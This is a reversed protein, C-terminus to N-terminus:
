GDGGLLAAGAEPSVVGAVGLIRAV